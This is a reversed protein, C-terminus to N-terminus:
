SAGADTWSQLTGYDIWDGPGLHGAYWAVRGAENWGPPLTASQESPVTSWSPESGGVWAKVKVQRGHALACFRIPSDDPPDILAPLGVQGILRLSTV